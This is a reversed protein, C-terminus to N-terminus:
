RIGYKNAIDKLKKRYTICKFLDMETDILYYVKMYENRLFKDRKRPNRINCEKCINEFDKLKLDLYTM